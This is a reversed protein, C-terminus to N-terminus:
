QTLLSSEKLISYVEVVADDLGGDANVVRHDYWPADNKLENETIRKREEWETDSMPSRARIRREFEEISKPEIFITLAGYHEKMYKAGVIQLVCFVIENRALRADIDPKYTGYYTDTAARHYYELINGKALEEKFRVNDMYHYNVGDVEGPRPARTTATVMLTADPIRKLLERVVTDKGSGAPGAIVVVRQKM